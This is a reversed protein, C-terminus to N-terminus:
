VQGGGDQPLGYPKVKENNHNKFNVYKFNM